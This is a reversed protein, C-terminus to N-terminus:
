LERTWYRTEELKGPIIPSYLVRRNVGKSGFYIRVFYSESGDGGYIELYTLKKKKLVVIKGELPEYLDGYASKSVGIDVGNVFINLKKVIYNYTEGKVSQTVIEVKIHERTSYINTIGSNNIKVVEACHTESAITSLAFLTCFFMIVIKIM